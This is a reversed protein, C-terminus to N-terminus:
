GKPVWYEHMRWHDALYAAGGHWVDFRMLVADGEDLKLLVKQGKRAVILMGGDQLSVLLTWPVPCRKKAKGVRRKKYRNVEGQKFDYHMPQRRRLRGGNSGLSHLVVSAQTQVDLLRQLDATADKISQLLRSDNPFDYSLRDAVDVETEELGLPVGRIHSSEGKDNRLKLPKIEAREAKLMKQANRILGDIVYVCSPELTDTTVAEAQEKSSSSNGKGTRSAARARIAEVAAVGDLVVDSNGMGSTTGSSEGKVRRVSATSSRTLRGPPPKWQNETVPTEM